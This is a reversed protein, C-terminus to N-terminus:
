EYSTDIKKERFNGLCHYNPCRESQNDCMNCDLWFTLFHEGNCTNIDYCVKQGIMSEARQVTKMSHINAYDSIVYPGDCGAEEYSSVSSNVVTNNQVYVVRNNGMYLAYHKALGFDPTWCFIPDGTEFSYADSVYNVFKSYMRKWWKGHTKWLIDRNYATRYDPILNGCTSKKKIALSEATVQMMTITIMGTLVIVGLHM